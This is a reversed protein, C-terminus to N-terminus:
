TSARVSSKEIKEKEKEEGGGKEREREREREREIAHVIDRARLSRHTGM